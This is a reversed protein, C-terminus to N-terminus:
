HPPSEPIDDPEQESSFRLEGVDKVNWCMTTGDVVTLRLPGGATDPLPGGDLAFALWGGERLIPLPISARYTGDRSIVTCFAASEHPELMDFIESLPVVEGVVNTADEGSLRSPLAALTRLDISGPRNVLGTVALGNDGM